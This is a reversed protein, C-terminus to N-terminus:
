KMSSKVGETRPLRRFGSSEVYDPDPGQRTCISRDARRRVTADQREAAERVYDLVRWFSLKSIANSCRGADRGRFGHADSISSTGYRPPSPRRRRWVRAAAALYWRGPKPAATELDHRNSAHECGSEAGQRQTGRM